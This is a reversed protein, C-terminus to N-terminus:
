EDFISTPLGRRKAEEKAEELSMVVNQMPGGDPGSHHLAQPPRGYGRDLLQASASVRAPESEGGEAIEVLAKLAVDAYERAM